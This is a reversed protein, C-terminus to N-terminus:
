WVAKFWEQRILSTDITRIGEGFREHIEDIIRYYQYYDQAEIEIELPYMGIQHVLYIIREHEACYKEFKEKMVTSFGDLILQAKFLTVGLAGLDFEPRYGLIVQAQELKVLRHYLTDARLGSERALDVNTARANRSLAVLLKTGAEDLPYRQIEGGISWTHAKAGLYQRSYFNAQILPNVELDRILTRYPALLENQLQFFEIPDKAAISFMLNWRGDTEAIWFVRPHKSLTTMFARRKTATHFAKLYVKYISHGFLHPNIVTTYSRVVGGTSLQNLRYEIQDRGRKLTRALESVSMRADRDLLAILQRTVSDQKM